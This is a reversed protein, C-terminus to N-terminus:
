MYVRCISVFIAYADNALENDTITVWFYPCIQKAPSILKVNNFSRFCAAKHVLICKNTLIKAMSEIINM